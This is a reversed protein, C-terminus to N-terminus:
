SMEILSHVTEMLEQTGDPEFGYSMTNTLLLCLMSALVRIRWKEMEISRPYKDFDQLQLWTKFNERYRRCNAFIARQQYKPLRESPVSYM